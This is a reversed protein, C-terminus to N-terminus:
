CAFDFGKKEVPKKNDNLELPGSDLVGNTSLSNTSVEIVHSVESAESSAVSNLGSAGRLRVRLDQLRMMLECDSLFPSFKM